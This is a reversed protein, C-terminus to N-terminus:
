PSPLRASHILQLNLSLFQKLFVLYLAISFIGSLEQRGCASASMAQLGCHVYSSMYVGEPIHIYAVVYVRTRETTSLFLDQRGSIHPSMGMGETVDNVTVGLIGFVNCTQKRFSKNRWQLSM